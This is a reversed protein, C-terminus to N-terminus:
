NPRLQKSKACFIKSKKQFYVIQSGPFAQRTPFKSADMVQHHIGMSEVVAADLRDPPLDVVAAIFSFLSPDDSVLVDTVPAGWLTTDAKFWFAGGEQKYPKGFASRFYDYFFHSDLQNMCLLTHGVTTSFTSPVAAFSLPAVLFAPLAFLALLRRLYNSFPFRPMAYQARMCRFHLLLRLHCM